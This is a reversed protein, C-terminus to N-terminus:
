LTEWTTGTLDPGTVRRAGRGARAPQPPRARRQDGERVGRVATDLVYAHVTAGTQNYSYTTNLPLDRQDIRDLGWTASTQTVDIGVEGDEEVFECRYDDALEAAEEESLSVSFGKVAHEYLHKLRGKGHIELMEEAVEPVSPLTSFEDPARVLDPNLVVIYAGAVPKPHKKIPGAETVVAAAVFMLLSPVLSKM